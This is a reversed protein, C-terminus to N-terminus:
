AEDPSGWLAESLRRSADEERVSEVSSQGDLAMLSPPALGTQSIGAVLEPMTPRRGPVEDWASRILPEFPELGESLRLEPRWGTSFPVRKPVAAPTVLPEPAMIEFLLVGYSFVDTRKRCPEAPEDNSRTILEPAMYWPAGMQAPRTNAHGAAAAVHGMAQGPRAPPSLGFDAVKARLGETLMINAAKIDRHTIGNRHLYALGVAVDRAIRAAIHAEICGPRRELLLNALSGGTMLEFVVGIGGHVSVLGFFSCLCPHRLRALVAAERRLHPVCDAPAGASGGLPLLLAQPPPLSGTTTSMVKVAVPIGAWDAIFCSGMSGRGLSRILEVDESPIQLAEMLASSGAEQTSANSV